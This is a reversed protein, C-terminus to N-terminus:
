RKSATEYLPLYRYYVELTLLSLSTTFLRGARNGWQDGQPKAPDWSGRDCHDGKVQMGVLGNRVMLNWRRWANGQLNHLMQTAYYWYYINRNKSHFLHDAVESAGRTLATNRRDWGMYQRILLAEATMVPTAKAGPQYAYTAGKDDAQASDLYKIADRVTSDPVSLHALQGSRLAMVQWGFVCTDGPQNPEYRWGGAKNQAHAIFELARNAASRLNRDGTVGYAECLAITAIAHSYMHVNAKGGVYLDGNPKQHHVIWDLGRRVNAQYRGPDTHSHGAGLLPLLALGTAATDSQMAPRHPCPHKKACRPNTDLSWSGNPNQHRVIWDLGREVAKESEVSGGERRVLKARQASSRGSFPATLQPLMAPEVESVSNKLAPDLQMEQDHIVDPMELLRSLNPDREQSISPAEMSDLTTFPDGSRDAPDLTTLDESLQTALQVGPDPEDNVGVIVVVALAFLAVAHALLSTGWPMLARLWWPASLEIWRRLWRLRVQTTRSLSRRHRRRRRPM